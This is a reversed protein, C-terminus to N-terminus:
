PMMTGNDFYYPKGKFDFAVITGDNAEKLSVIRTINPTHFTQWKAHNYYLLGEFNAVYVNGAKDCLIDFNRINAGYEEPTFLRTFPNGKVTAASAGLTQLFLFIAFIFRKLTNM